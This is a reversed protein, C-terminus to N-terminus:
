KGIDLKKNRQIEQPFITAEEVFHHGGSGFPINRLYKSTKRKKKEQASYCWYM